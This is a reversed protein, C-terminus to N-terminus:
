FRGGGKGGEWSCSQLDEMGSSMNPTVSDLTTAPFQGGWKMPSHLNQRGEACRRFWPRGKVVDRMNNNDPRKKLLHTGNRWSSELIRDTPVNSTQDEGEGCLLQPPIEEVPSARWNM